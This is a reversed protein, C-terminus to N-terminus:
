LSTLYVLSPFVLLRISNVRNRIAIKWLNIILCPRLRYPALPSPTKKDQKNHPDLQNLHIESLNCHFNSGIIEGCNHATIGNADFRSPGPVTCDFVAAEGDAEIAAITVAFRERNFNHKYGALAQQLREAKALDQFGILDQFVAINDNAIALEHQAQCFYDALPRNSDPLQRVGAPRRNQYIASAIGVRLLMRQVSELLPLNSQALRISVGKEQSGQISGDADFLGRLFGQYFEYSAQEIETTITKHHQEIGYQNALKALGASGIEYYKNQQHYIGTLNSATAVTNKVLDLAYKSMEVQTDDWYRLKAQHSYSAAHSSFCGDGILNGLLWGEAFTGNGHWPQLGRHNHLLIRDGSSLAGAEVWQSYQKKQTQATVQLLQHNSTLRLTYGEKTTLKIVPKVGTFFFGDPTTSFLEGNVYTSHQVGVLDKVQRAGDGTHVWTEATVCPNLGYRELRHELETEPMDPHHSRLWKQAAEIGQQGYVRIFEKKLEPTPLIDVNSRAIAEGAWQIAGEGSYYQQRVADICEAETPKHHYVRTHNAM